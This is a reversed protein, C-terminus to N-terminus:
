CREGPGAPHRPSSSPPGPHRPPAVARDAAAPDLRALLTALAERTCAVQEPIDGPTM